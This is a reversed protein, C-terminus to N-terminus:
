LTITKDALHLVSPDHSVALITIHLGKLREMILHTSEEDLNSTAEDLILIDPGRYLARSICLKQMQGGSLNIGQEGVLSELSQPHSGIFTNLDAMKCVEWIRDLDPNRDGLAINDIFTGAFLEASQPVIGILTRLSTPHLERVEGDNVTISGQYPYLGQILKILTSKGCGNKGNLVTLKGDPITLSLREFLNGRAGYAFTLDEIVIDGVLHSVEKTGGKAPELDMVDFLRDAAILARQIHTNAVILTGLPVTFYAMVSYFSVLEGLTFEEGVVFLGAIWLLGITFARSAGNTTTVAIISNLGAQYTANLFQRFVNSTKNLSFSELGLHKITGINNLSEVMQSEFDATREMVKRETKKNLRNVLAYIGIYVPIISLLILALKWQVIFMFSFSVILILGNLLLSLGVGNIFNRIKVADSVRSIIEGTRMKGFFSYPLKMLHSYYGLILDADIKQAVRLIFVDKIVSMLIEIALIGFVILSLVKLTFLNGIPLVQDVLHGIYISPTLGLITSILALTLAGFLTSAHPRLLKFIRGLRSKKSISRFSSSPELLLLVGSWMSKFKLKSVKDMEGKAPDMFVVHDSTINYVVVYHQLNNELTIHAITPKATSMLADMTAQVGEAKFGMKIAAQKLGLASTGCRDTKAYQRIRAIPLHLGYHGAISALCAAGCDTIDHQKVNM